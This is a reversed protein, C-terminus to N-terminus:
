VSQKAGVVPVAQLVLRRPVEQVLAAGGGGGAVVHGLVRALVEVLVLLALEDESVM